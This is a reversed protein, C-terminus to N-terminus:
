NNNKNEEPKAICVQTREIFSELWEIDPSNIKKLIVGIAQRKDLESGDEDFSTLPFHIYYRKAM